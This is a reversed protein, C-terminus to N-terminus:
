VLIREGPFQEAENYPPVYFIGAARVSLLSNLGSIPMQDDGGFNTKGLGYRLLNYLNEIRGQFSVFNLGARFYPDTAIPELFEYGQRFIRNPQNQNKLYSARKYMRGIHSKELLKDSVSGSLNRQAGYPPHERFFENGNETVESTGSVPCGRIVINKKVDGKDYTGALPCGTFKDRGIIREQDIRDISEWISLDIGIRLFALYSGNLTWKQTINLDHGNIAIVKLREGPRINSIGDHFGLWGRRDPRNFGSFFNQPVVMNKNDLSSNIGRLIKWTEVVARHTALQTDAMFQIVIHEGAVTNQVIDSSYCLGIDDLLPGGGKAEPKKFLWKSELYSPRVKKIGALDFLTPGYGILVSLNGHHLNKSNKTHSEKVIGKELDGYMKWLLLLTNRVLSMDSVNELRLFVMSFSEHPRENELYHIGKQLRVLM